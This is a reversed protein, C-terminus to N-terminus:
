LQPFGTPLQESIFALFKRGVKENTAAIVGRSRWSWAQDEALSTTCYGGAGRLIVFGPVVDWINTDYNFFVHFRSEALAMLAMQGSGLMRIGRTTSAIHELMAITKSRPGPRTSLHTMVMCDELAIADIDTSLPIEKGTPLNIKVSPHGVLGCYLDQTTPSYIVGMTPVGNRLLGISICFFPFGFAFNLTGDLPDIVWVYEHKDITQEILQPSNLEEESIIGDDRVVRDEKIYKRMLRNSEIDADTPFNKKEHKRVTNAYLSSHYFGLVRSGLLHAIERGFEYRLILERDFQSADPLHIRLCERLEERSKACRVGALFTPVPTSSTLLPILRRINHGKALGIEYSVWHSRLSDPSIIVIVLAASAILEKVRQEISDGLDIALHDILVEHGVSRIDQEVEDAIPRDKASYSIFVRQKM